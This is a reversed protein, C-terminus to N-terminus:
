PWTAQLPSTPGGTIFPEEDSEKVDELVLYALVRMDIGESQEMVM